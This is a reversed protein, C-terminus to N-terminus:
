TSRIETSLILCTYIQYKISSLLFSFRCFLQFLVVMFFPSMLDCWFSDDKPSNAARMTIRARIIDRIFHFTNDPSTVASIRQNRLRCGCTPKRTHTRSHTQTNHCRANDDGIVLSMSPPRCPALHSSPTPDHSGWRGASLTSLTFRFRSSTPPSANEDLTSIM